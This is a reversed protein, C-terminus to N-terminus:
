ENSDFEIEGEINGIVVVDNTNLYYKILNGQVFDTGKSSKAPNGRMVAIGNKEDYELEDASSVRDESTITVNGSLISIDTDVNFELMNADASLGPSDGEAARELTVPGDMTGINTGQDLFFRVGTATTRGQELSVSAETSRIINEPCRPRNFSLSGGFLELTDSNDNNETDPSEVIVIASTLKTEETITEVFGPNPGYFISQRFGEKCNPNRLPSRAEASPDRNTIVIDTDDRKISVTPLNSSQAFVFALLFIGPRLAFVLFRPRM